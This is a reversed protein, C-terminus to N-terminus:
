IDKIHEHVVQAIWNDEWTNRLFLYMFRILFQFFVFLCSFLNAKTSMKGPEFSATEEKSLINPAFCKHM